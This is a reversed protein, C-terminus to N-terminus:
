FCVRDFVSVPLLQKKDFYCVFNTHVLVTFCFTYFRKSTASVYTLSIKVSKQIFGFNLVWSCLFKFVFIFHLLLFIIFNFNFCSTFFFDILFDILIFLVLLVFNFSFNGPMLCHSRQIFSMLSIKLTRLSTFTKTFTWLPFASIHSSIFNANLSFIIIHRLLLNPICLARQLRM